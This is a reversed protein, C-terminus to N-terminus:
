KLAEYEKKAQMLVPLDADADKWAAFFDQYERRAKGTDGTLVAARALGVHALAHVPSFPDIGRHELIAQFEAAAASGNRQQLYAQGRSYTLSVGAYLGFDFRRLSEFIQVAETVNGKSRELEARCIPIFALNILTDKPSNKLQEDNFQQSRTQDGCRAFAEAAFALAIRGRQLSLGKEVSPAVEGCKGLIAKIWGLNTLTQAANEKQEEGKYLQLQQTTIQEAKKLQGAYTARGAVLRLINAEFPKGKSWQEERDMEAQDGRLFAVLFANAHSQTSDPYLAMLEKSSKEAEDFRGLSVFAGILNQRASFNNPVLRVAELAYKLADENKGLFMSNLALNNHPIYDNPYLRAWTQQVEMAKDIEGTVYSYYKESIYFREHESVRDRLEFAKEVYKQATEIQGFNGYAVGLRAYAMAFNPDLEIARKFMAVSQTTNGKGREETGM